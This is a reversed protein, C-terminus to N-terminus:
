ASVPFASHLISWERFMQTEFHAFNLLYSNMTPIFHRAIWDQSTNMFRRRLCAPFRAGPHPFPPYALMVGICDDMRSARNRWPFDLSSARRSKVPFEASVVPM